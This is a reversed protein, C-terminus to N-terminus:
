ASDTINEFCISHFTRRLEEEEDLEDVDLARHHIWQSGDSQVPCVNPHTVNWSFRKHFGVPGAQWTDYELMAHLSGAASSRIGREVAERKLYQACVRLSYAIPHKLACGAPFQGEQPMEIFKTNSVNAYIETDMIRCTAQITECGSEWSTAVFAAVLFIFILYIVGCLYLLWMSMPHESIIAGLWDFHLLLRKRHIGVESVTIGNGPNPDAAGEERMETDNTDSQQNPRQNAHRAQLKDALYTDDEEIAFEMEDKDEKSLPIYMIMTMLRVVIPRAEVVAVSSALMLKWSFFMMVLYFFCYPINEVEQSMPEGTNGPEAVAYCAVYLFFVPFIFFMCWDLVGVFSHVMMNSVNIEHKEKAFIVLRMQHDDAAQAAVAGQAGRRGRLTVWRVQEEEEIHSIATMHRIMFKDYTCHLITKFLIFFLSAIGLKPSQAMVTVLSGVLLFTGGCFAPIYEFFLTVLVRLDHERLAHSFAAPIIRSYSGCIYVLLMRCRLSFLSRISMTYSGYLGLAFLLAFVYILLWSLMLEQSLKGSNALYIQSVLAACWRPALFVLFMAIAFVGAALVGMLKVYWSKGLKLSTVLLGSFLHTYYRRKLDNHHTVTPMFCLNIVSADQGSFDELYDDLYGEDAWYRNYMVLPTKELQRVGPVEYEIAKSGRLKAVKMVNYVDQFHMFKQSREISEASRRTEGLPSQCKAPGPLLPAELVRRRWGDPITGSEEDAILINLVTQELTSVRSPNLGYELGRRAIGPLVPPQYISDTRGTLVLQVADQLKMERLNRHRELGFMKRQSAEKVQFVGYRATISPDQLANMLQPIYAELENQVDEPIANGPGIWDAYCRVAVTLTAGIRPGNVSDIHIRDLPIGTLQSLAPKIENRIRVVNMRWLEFGEAHSELLHPPVGSNCTAVVRRSLPRWHYVRSAALLWNRVRKRIERGNPPSNDGLQYMLARHMKRVVFMRYTSQIRICAEIQIEQPISLWNALSDHATNPVALGQQNSGLARTMDMREALQKRSKQKQTYKSDARMRVGTQHPAPVGALKTLEMSLYGSSADTLLETACSPTRSEALMRIHCNLSTRFVAELRLSLSRIKMSEDETTGPSFAFPRGQRMVECYTNELETWEKRAEYVTSNPDYTEGFKFYVSMTNAGADQDHLLMESSHLQYVNRFMDWASLPSASVQTVIVAQLPQMAVISPQGNTSLSMSLENLKEHLRDYSGEIVEIKKSLSILLLVDDDNRVPFGPRVLSMTLAPDEPTQACTVPVWTPYFWTRMKEASIGQDRMHCRGAIKSLHSNIEATWAIKRLNVESGSRVLSYLSELFKLTFVPTETPTMSLMVGFRPSCTSSLNPYKSTDVQRGVALDLIVVTTATSNSSASLANLKEIFEEIKIAAGDEYTCLADPPGKKDGAITWDARTSLYFIFIGSGAQQIFHKYCKQIEWFSLEGCKRISRETQTYHVENSIDGVLDFGANNFAEGVLRADTKAHSLPSKWDGEFSDIGAVLAVGKWPGSPVPPRPPPITPAVDELSVGENEGM